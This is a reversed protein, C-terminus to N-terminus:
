PRAEHLSYLTAPQQQAKHSKPKEIDAEAAEKKETSQPPPPMAQAPASVPRREPPAVTYPWALEAYHVAPPDFGQGAQLAEHASAQLGRLAHSAHHDHLASTACEASCYCVEWEIIQSSPPQRQFYAPQGWGEGSRALLRYIPLM